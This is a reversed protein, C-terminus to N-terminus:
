KYKLNKFIRNVALALRHHLLIWFKKKTAKIATQSPKRQKKDIKNGKRKKTEFKQHHYSFLRQCTKHKEKLFEFADKLESKLRLVKKLAEKNFNTACKRGAKTKGSKNSFNTNCNIIEQGLQKLKSYESKIRKRNYDITGIDFPGSPYDDDYFKGIASKNTSSMISKESNNQLEKLTQQLSYKRRGAYISNLLLTRVIRPLVM